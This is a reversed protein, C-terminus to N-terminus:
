RKDDYASLANKTASVTCIRHDRSQIMTQKVTCAKVGLAEKYQRHMLERKAVAKKIGKATRKTANGVTFCYMKIKLGVVDSIPVGNTEDKFKGVVQKNMKSYLPHEEPYDITDFHSAMQGMDAYVDPTEIHYCLSDTDTFLLKSKDGYKERIV